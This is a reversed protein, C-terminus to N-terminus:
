KQKSLSSYLLLMSLHKSLLCDVIFELLLWVLIHNIVAIAALTPIKGESELSFCAAENLHTMNSPIAPSLYM